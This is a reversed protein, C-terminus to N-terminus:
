FQDRERKESYNEIGDVYMFDDESSTDSSSLEKPAKAMLDIDSYM